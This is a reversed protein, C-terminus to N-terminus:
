AEKSDVVHLGQAAHALSSNPQAHLLQQVDAWSCDIDQKWNKWTGMFHHVALVDSGELSAKADPRWPQGAGFANMPLVKIDGVVQGQAVQTINDVKMHELLAETWIFPGTRKLITSHYQSQGQGASIYGLSDAATRAMIKVALRKLLPHGPAAAMAWNTFQIPRHHNYMDFATPDKHFAEVGVVLNGSGYPYADDWDNIPKHCTVDMDAYVGGHLYLVLYRWLDAREVNSLFGDYVPLLDPFHNIMLDRADKDTHFMYTYEKNLQMWSKMNHVVQCPLRQKVPMSQHIIKPIPRIPAYAQSPQTPTLAPAAGSQLQTKSQRACTSAPM